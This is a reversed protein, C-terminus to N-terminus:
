VNKAGIFLSLAYLPIVVFLGFYGLGREILSVTRLLAAQKALLRQDVKKHRNMWANLVFDFDKTNLYVWVDFFVTLMLLLGVWIACTVFLMTMM